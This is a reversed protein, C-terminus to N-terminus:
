DKKKLHNQFTVNTLEVILVLLYYQYKVTKSQHYKSYRISYGNLAMNLAGHRLAGEFTALLSLSVPCLKNNEFVLRRVQHIEVYAFFYRVQSFRFEFPRRLQSIVIFSFM